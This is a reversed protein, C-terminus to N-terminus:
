PPIKDGTQHPASQVIEPEIETKGKRTYKKLQRSTCKNCVRFNFCWEWADTRNPETITCLTSTDELNQGHFVEAAM